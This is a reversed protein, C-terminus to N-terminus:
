HAPGRAPKAPKAVKAAKPGKAASTANTAKTAKTAKRDKTVKSSKTAKTAKAAKSGKTAKAAARAAERALRAAQARLAADFALRAWVLAEGPNELAADPMRHYALRAVEGMRVYEFAECGAAVFTALSREDAKLYVVDDAVLGFMLGDRFIGQGGFMRRLEIPGFGRLLDRLHDGFESM